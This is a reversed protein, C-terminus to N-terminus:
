GKPYIIAQLDRIQKFTVASESGDEMFAVGGEDEPCDSGDGCDVITADLLAKAANYLRYYSEPSPACEPM